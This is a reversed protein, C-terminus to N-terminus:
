FHSIHCDLVGLIFNYNRWICSSQGQALSKTKEAKLSFVLYNKDWSPGTLTFNSICLLKKLQHRSCLAGGVM